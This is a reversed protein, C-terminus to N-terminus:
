SVAQVITIFPSSASVYIYWSFAATFLLAVYTGSLISNKNKMLLSFFWTFFVYFIYIYSTSYHSFILALSFIMLLIRKKILDIKKDFLLLMLLVFYLEAIMQRALGLMEKYFTFFSMFFFTSLFAIKKTM